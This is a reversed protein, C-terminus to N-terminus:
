YKVSCGYPRTIAESVPVGELAENLALKVYPVAKAVDSTDASPISDIGGAYILTGEPDVIFMHPTTKAGYLRGIDGSEDLLVATPHANRSSTLEDAEDGSVHGQKGAASSIISLWVVGKTTAAEQLAQMNGTNYHKQVFPCGHNTWELVVFKGQHESLTVPEGSTAAGAFDPAPQGVTVSAFATMPAASLLAALAFLLKM